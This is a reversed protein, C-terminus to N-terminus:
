GMDREIGREMDRVAVLASVLDSAENAPRSL